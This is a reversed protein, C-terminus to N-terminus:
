SFPYLGKPPTKSPPKHQFVTDRVDALACAHPTRAEGVPHCVDHRRLGEGHAVAGVQLSSRADQQAQLHSSNKTKPRCHM